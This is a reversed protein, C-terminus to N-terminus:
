WGRQDIGKESLSTYGTLDRQWAENSADDMINVGVKLPFQVGLITITELLEISFFTALVVCLVEPNLNTHSTEVVNESWLPCPLTAPLLCDNWKPNGQCPPDPIRM